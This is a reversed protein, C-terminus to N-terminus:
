EVNHQLNLGFGSAVFFFGIRDKDIFSTITYLSSVCCDAPLNNVHFSFKVSSFIFLTMGYSLLKLRGPLYLSKFNQHGRIAEFEIIYVNVFNFSSISLNM